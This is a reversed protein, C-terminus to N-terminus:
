DRAVYFKHLTSAYNRVFLAANRLPRRIQDFSGPGRSVGRSLGPRGGKKEGPTRAAPMAEEVEVYEYEYTWEDEEEPEEARPKTGAERKRRKKKDKSNSTSNGM